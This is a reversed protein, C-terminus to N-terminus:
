FRMMVGIQPSLSGNTLMNVGSRIRSLASGAEVTTPKYRLPSTCHCLTDRM